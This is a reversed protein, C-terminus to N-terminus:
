TNGGLMRPTVRANGFACKYAALIGQATGSPRAQCSLFATRITGNHFTRYYVLEEKKAAQDTASDSMLALSSSAPWYQPVRHPESHHRLPICFKPAPWRSRYGAIIVGGALEVLEADGDIDTLSGDRKEM